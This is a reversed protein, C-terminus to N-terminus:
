APSRVVHHWLWARPVLGSRHIEAARTRGFYRLHWPEYRYCSVAREGKPYSVVFGYRWGKRALWSYAGSTNRFDLATGLQHESHGPRAARLAAADPGLADVFADYLAKQDAFSRYASSVRLTIGDRRAAAVMARLDGIVLRRVRHGGNTGANATSVLHPPVYARAVRFRTDLFTSAWQSHARYPAADDGVTCAPLPDAASVPAPAWAAVAAAMAPAVLLAPLLRALRASRALHHTM